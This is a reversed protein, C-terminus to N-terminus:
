ERKHAAAPPGPRALLWLDSLASSVDTPSEGTGGAFCHVRLGQVERQHGNGAVPAASRMVVLHRALDPRKAALWQFFGTADHEGSFDADALVLDFEKKTLLELAREATQASQVQHERRRLTESVTELVSEDGDILLIRGEKAAAAPRAAPKEMKEAPLFPLEITFTAGRPPTNRVRITGGHESVIGYCISLGLGTGKGVPKTTYFPDFVKSPDQVGPGNDAIEVVLGAAESRTRMWIDGEKGQELIADVANNVLNLFVQQLQHPDAATVPLDPALELHLRINNVRLDYDRLAVTDEIVQNLQVPVREPKHQRAFSLLNQVIRHTRQAQKYLKEAYEVTQTGPQGSSSLLQSYGLIATLPNNLEHAVGSILQGVAAMKENHLLQEQARRLNDYAQRTEEFLLSKEVASALQGGLAVLLNIDAPSFERPTRSGVFLGGMVRDKSWLVLIYASVIGEKSEIERFLQPLPLGQMSLFTARVARIHELLEAQIPVPPVHRAYESRHGVAAIRRLTTRTEDLLYLSSADLHFLELLHRLTRYASDGLDLSENLIQGISNLVVLERNRRRVEQEARKRETIDLLFGQYATVNGAGDRVATSSEIVTRAEGDKRLMEFEFDAVSGHEQLLRRLRERDAINVYLAPIEARLLEERSEYGTMRLFAENFDLFKGQPTSIFVGEQVSAILSRYKEEARKRASIDRLIHVTGLPKGEPDAFTSNSALFYGRLWPDPDDGEGAVGECYPCDQFNANRRQFIDGMTRGNLAAEERGLHHALRRNFRVVRFSRDHVFVPDDISDFTNAWQQQITAVQEFLGVNQLTLGLLNAVNAMFAIEDEQFKVPRFSGVAVIGLPGEKGPLPVSAMQTMGSQIMRERTLDDKSDGPTQLVFRENLVMRTWPRLISVRRYKEDYSPNFGVSSRTVLEAADGEGELIRILGHTVGLSEVLNSLVKDLVEQVSLTQTSATTLLTLRRLKDNLDETRARAEELVLVAMATGLAVSLLHDFALRLLFIPHNPWLPRDLSHLGGLLFAAALLVVGIKRSSLAHRWLLVGACLFVALRLGAMEWRMQGLAAPATAELYFVSAFLLGTLPLLQWFFRAIWETYQAVAALFLLFAALDGATHILRLLPLGSPQLVSFLEAFSAVTFCAWGAVWTQFYNSRHNRRLLM